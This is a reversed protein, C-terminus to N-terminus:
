SDEDEFEGEDDRPRDEAKEEMEESFEESHREDDEGQDAGRGENDDAMNQRRKSVLSESAEASPRCVGANFDGWFKLSFVEIGDEITRISM